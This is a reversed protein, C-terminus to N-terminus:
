EALAAVALALARAQESKAVEGFGLAAVESASWFTESDMVEMVKEKALGTRAVYVDVYSDRIKDLVDAVARLDNGDGEAMTWPNHLMLQAGPAMVIRSGAMAILSAASAALGDIRVIFGRGKLAEYIALGEHADGGPSHIRLVSGAALGKTEALVTALNFDLGVVGYLLVESAGAVSEKKAYAKIAKASLKLHQSM